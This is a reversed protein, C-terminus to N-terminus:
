GGGPSIYYGQLFLKLNLTVNCTNVTATVPTRTLSLCGTNPNRAQAYYVTTNSIVPTIYTASGSLLATGGTTSAYWDITEGSGPAAMLTDNGSGCRAAGTGPPDVPSPITSLVLSAASDCGVSNTLHVTYTGASNYSNSNWSYPLTNTCVSVNTTSTSTAKVVVTVNQTNSCGNATINFAYVVNLPGSTTNMLVENPSSAQATTIAANTIGAVAARTWTFSAGSTGSAPIYSFTTNSCIASPTLSSSLTPPSAPTFSVPASSNGNAVVVLSYTGSPLGAPLFFQVTDQAAGRRVGTSNWNATRAYYVNSGSTLRVLPYNSAMQWDDGYSAGESIGNFLTGKVTYTSCATQTISTITPKGATLAAGYPTYVYFASSGQRSYLVTGDPLDLFNTIYTSINLSTGGGPANILTFGNTTYDYEYFYSPSPFHNASTPVPSAICLIKGNVMM